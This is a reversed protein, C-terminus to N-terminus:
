NNSSVSIIQNVRTKLRDASEVAKKARSELHEVTILMKLLKARLKKDSIGDKLCEEIEYRVVSVGCILVTHHNGLAYFFNILLTERTNKNMKSVEKTESELKLIVHLEAMTLTINDINASITVEAPEGM